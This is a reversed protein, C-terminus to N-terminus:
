HGFPGAMPISFRAEIQSVFREEPQWAALMERVLETDDPHLINLPNINNLTDDRYGLISSFAKNTEHIAADPGVLVMGIGSDDLVRQLKGISDALVSRAHSAAELECAVVM